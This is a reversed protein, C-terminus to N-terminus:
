KKSANSKGLSLSGKLLSEYKDLDEVTIKDPDIQLQLVELESVSYNNQRSIAQSREDDRSLSFTRIRDGSKLSATQNSVGTL